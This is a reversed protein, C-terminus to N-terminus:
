KRPKRSKKGFVSARRRGVFVAATRGELPYPQIAPRGEWGKDERPASANAAVTWELGVPLAPLRVTTGEWHANYVLCVLDEEGTAPHVGAFCVEVTPANEEPATKGDPGFFQIGPMGKLPTLPRRLVPHERRLRILKQFYIYIERNKELLSWDLYSLDNDQCYCNNNGQQTNGMEDGALFMAAGRSCLLLTVANCIMKKRLRNVEPDNTEGEAGCNWSRNDDTGDTNNWGNARNHKQNYSYLDYLTFGDHCTLFNVSSACGRYGGHSYMDESGGIRRLAAASEWLDGKLYGRITDRYQGNWEAWRGNAPFRGVQYLGTDWAEAILKTRSLIPDCAIARLIPPDELPTGDEGRSLVSALDFRFGDVHYRIVWYRLCDLIMRQVVPHNCKLTNGCGSYNHYSGDPSLIYYLNNDLGKFSFLPGDQNGEATHNFVVDLIVEIRNKHLEKVLEKLETGAQGPEQHGSYAAHPAFYGVTNYGWSELLLKGEFQRRHLTEDFQFIPLLEVANIGLEKLYPIKERIASFTGPASVGSTPHRTFFRTHMEYIVLDTLPYGPARDEGWDFRDEVIRARYVFDGGSGWQDKGAVSKAYPDLLIKRGDFRLGKQPQTPGEVRYAYETKTWDLGTVKVAWVDGVRWKLPIPIERFPQPQGPRFLLLTCGCAGHSQLAFNVGDAEVTAGLPEVKGPLIDEQRPAPAPVESRIPAPPTKEKKMFGFRM